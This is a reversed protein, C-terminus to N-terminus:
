RNLQMYRIQKHSGQISEMVKGLASELAIPQYAKAKTYDPKGPKRLVVTTTHKFPKPFYMLNLSAQMLVRLHSETVSLSNKLVRNTIDDPGPAKDPALRAVAERVQRIPKEFRRFPQAPLVDKMPTDYSCDYEDQTADARPRVKRYQDEVNRKRKKEVDVIGYTVNGDTDMTISRSSEEGVQGYDRKLTIANTAATEGKHELLKKIGGKGFMLPYEQGSTGDVIRNREELRVRGEQLAQTLEPCLLKQYHTTSDCFICCAQYSTPKGSVAGDKSQESPGLNALAEVRLALRSM